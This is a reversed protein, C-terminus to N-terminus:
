QVEPILTKPVLIVVEGIGVYRSMQALVDPDTCPEGVVAYQPGDTDVVAPCTGDDGCSGGHAAVKRLLRTIKV